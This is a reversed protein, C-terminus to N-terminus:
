NAALELHDPQHGNSQNVLETQQKNRSKTLNIEPDNLLRVLCM